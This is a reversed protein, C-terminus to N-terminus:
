GDFHGPYGSRRCNHLILFMARYTLQMMLGGKEPFSLDTIMCWRGPQYKKPIVGICNIQVVPALPKSFPGIVGRCEVENQIYVDVVLKNEMVSQM